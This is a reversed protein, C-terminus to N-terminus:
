NLTYGNNSDGGPIVGAFPDVSADENLHECAYAYAVILDFSIKIDSSGFNYEESSHGCRVSYSLINESDKSVYTMVYFYGYFNDKATFYIDAIPNGSNTYHRTDVRGYAEVPSYGLAESMAKIDWSGDHIYDRVNIRTTLTQGGVQWSYTGDTSGSNNSSDTEEGSQTTGEPNNTGDMISSDGTDFNEGPRENTSTTAEQKDAKQGCGTLALCLVMAMILAVFVTIRKKM